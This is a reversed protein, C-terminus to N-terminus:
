PHPAPLPIVYTNGGAKLLYYHSGVVEIATITQVSRIQKVDLPFKVDTTPRIMNGKEDLILVNGNRDFAVRFPLVNESSPETMGTMKEMQACAMLPTVILALLFPILVGRNQRINRKM